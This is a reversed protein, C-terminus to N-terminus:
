EPAKFSVATGAYEATADPPSDLNDAQREGATIWRVNFTRKAVMGPFNGSRAGISL